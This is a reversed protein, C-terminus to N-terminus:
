RPPRRKLLWSLVQLLGPRSANPDIQLVAVEEDEAPLEDSYVEFPGESEWNTWEFGLCEAAQVIADFDADDLPSQAESALPSGAKALPAEPDVVIKRLLRGARAAVLGTNGTISEHYGTVATAGIRGSLAVVSELDRPELEGDFIYTRGAREGFIAAAGRRPANAAEELSAAKGVLRPPRLWDYHEKLMPLVTDRPAELCTLSLRSM